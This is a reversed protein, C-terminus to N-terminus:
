PWDALEAGHEPLRFLRPRPNGPQPRPTVTGIEVFGFGARMLAPVAVADKDFGAALGFPNGFRLGMAEVALASKEKIAVSQGVDLRGMEKALKWGFAIDAHERASPPRRTLLGESVLLEPCYDLASAFTMGDREFEAIVGLLISSPTREEFTVRGGSSTSPLRWGVGVRVREDLLLVRRMGDLAGGLLRAQDVAGM